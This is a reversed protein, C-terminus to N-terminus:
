TLKEKATDLTYDLVSGWGKWKGYDGITENHWIFVFDGGYNAVEDILNDIIEKASDISCNMYELLTGDMYAFPHLTLEEICDKELNFWKFPRAIGARFGPQEAFGLTYDHEFGEKVLHQYTKPIELKLYHQRSHTVPFGLIESIREKEIALQSLDNNSKYSPHLGIFVERSVNKILKKHYINTPSINRDYKGYDGVHWFVKVNFYNKNIAIIKDFTDYPDKKDGSLVEKRETLRLSDRLLFDKSKSLYSRLKSRKLYAYAHDVDFTPCVSTTIKKALLDVSLQQELYEIFVYAWREVMLKGYMNHKYLINNKLLSRGHVDVEDNTYEEYLTVVYFIAALIDPHNNITLIETNWFEDKAIQQKRIDEEFLLSAPSITLYQKEFPRDSYVFKPADIEEFVLPDNVVKYAIKREKFVLDLTYTLRISVVDSFIHLVSSRM